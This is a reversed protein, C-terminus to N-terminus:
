IRNSANKELAIERQKIALSSIRTKGLSYNIARQYYFNSEEFKSTRRLLEAIIYNVAASDYRSTCQGSYFATQFNSLAKEQFEIREKQKKTDYKLLYSAVLYCDAIERYSKNQQKKIESAIVCELEETIETSQYKKLYSKLFKREKRPLKIKFDDLFGSYHCKPCSSIYNKYFNWGGYFHMELDAFAHFEITKGTDLSCYSGTGIFFTAEGDIPCKVEVISPSHAKTLIPFLIIIGLLCIMKYSDLRKFSQTFDQM